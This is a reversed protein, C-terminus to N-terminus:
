RDERKGDFFNYCDEIVIDDDEVKTCCHKKELRKVREVITRHKKKQNM